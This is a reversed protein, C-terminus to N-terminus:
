LHSTQKASIPLREVLMRILRIQSPLQSVHWLTEPLKTDRTAQGAPLRHTSTSVSVTFMESYKCTQKTDTTWPELQLGNAQM